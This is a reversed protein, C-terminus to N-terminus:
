LEYSITLMTTLNPFNVDSKSCIHSVLNQHSKELSVEVGYIEFRM